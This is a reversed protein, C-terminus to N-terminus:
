PATFICCYVRRGPYNLASNMPGRTCCCGAAASASSSLRTPSISFAARALQSEREISFGGTTPRNDPERPARIAGALFACVELPQGRAASRGIVAYINRRMSVQESPQSRIRQWKGACLVKGEQALPLTFVHTNITAAQCRIERTNTTSRHMIMPLFHRWYSQFIAPVLTPFGSFIRKQQCIFHRILLIALLLKVALRHLFVHLSNVIESWELSRVIPSIVVQPDRIESFSQSINQYRYIYM